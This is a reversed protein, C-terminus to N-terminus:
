FKAAYSLKDLQIITKNKEIALYYETISPTASGFILISKHIQSLQSAVRNAHYYPPQGHKYASDHSEDVVILGINRIPSFLASRPGIVVVPSQAELVRLWAKERQKPTLQSHLIIVKDGFSQRFNMALQSTLGIEPSLILVSKKNALSQKALELYLRTKGSGTRGHVIYTDPKKIQKLASEQEQTLDPLEPVTLKKVAADESVPQNALKISIPLFQQTIVGIPSPYFEKLWKALIISSAPLPTLPLASIISKTAFVPRPVLKFVIGLVKQQRLPVEVISGIPLSGEFKYTLPENGRYQASRVWVHYYSM